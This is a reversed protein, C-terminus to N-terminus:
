VEVNDKHYASHMATREVHHVTVGNDFISKLKLLHEKPCSNCNLHVDQTKIYNWYKRSKFNPTMLQNQAYGYLHFYSAIMSLEREKLGFVERHLVDGQQMRYLTDSGVNNLTFGSGKLDAQKSTEAIATNVMGVAGSVLSMPNMTTLANTGSSLMQTMYQAKIQNQNNAIYNLYASNSTPLVNGPTVANYVMGLTDGRYGEIYLQYMGQTNLATRLRIRQTPKSTDIMSLSYNIPTSIGDAICGYHYPALWLKGENQWKFNGGIDTGTIFNPEFDAVIKGLTKMQYVRRVIEGDTNDYYYKNKENYTLYKSKLTVQYHEFDDLTMYPIFYCGMVEQVPPIYIHQNPNSSSSDTLDTSGVIYYSINGSLINNGAQDEIVTSLFDNAM